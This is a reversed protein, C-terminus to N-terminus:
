VPGTHVVELFQSQVKGTFTHPTRTLPHVIRNLTEIQRWIGFLTPPSRRAAVAVLVAVCLKGLLIALFLANASALVWKRLTGSTIPTLLVIVAVKWLLAFKLSLVDSGTVCRTFFAVVVVSSTGLGLGETM